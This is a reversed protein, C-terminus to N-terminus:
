KKVGVIRVDKFKCIPCKVHSEKTKFNPTSSCLKTECRKGSRSIGPCKLPIALCTGYIIGEYYLDPLNAGQEQWEEWEWMKGHVNDM